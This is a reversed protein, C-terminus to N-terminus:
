AVGVAFIFVIELGDIRHRVSRAACQAYKGIELGDIRHRVKGNSPPQQM